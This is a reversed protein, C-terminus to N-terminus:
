LELKLYINIYYQTGEMATLRDEYYGEVLTVTRDIKVSLFEEKKADVWPHGIAFSPLGATKGFGTSDYGAYPQRITEAFFVDRQEPIRLWLWGMENNQKNLKKLFYSTTVLLGKVEKTNRPLPIQLQIKSGLRVVKITHILIKEM